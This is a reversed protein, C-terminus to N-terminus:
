GTLSAWRGDLCWRPYSVIGDACMRFRAKTSQVLVGGGKDDSECLFALSRHLQQFEIRWAIADARRSDIDDVVVTLADTGPPSKRAGKSMARGALEAAAAREAAEMAGRAYGQQGIAESWEARWMAWDWASDKRQGPVREVILHYQDGDYGVVSAQFLGAGSKNWKCVIRGARSCITGHVHGILYTSLSRNVQRIVEHTRHSANGSGFRCGFTMQEM